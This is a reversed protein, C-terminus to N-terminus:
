QASEINRFVQALRPDLSGNEHERRSGLEAVFKLTKSRASIIVQGFRKLSRLKQHSHFRQQSARLDAITAMQRKESEMLKEEHM